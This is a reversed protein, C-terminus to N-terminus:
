LNEQQDGYLKEIDIEGSQPDFRQISGIIMLESRSSNAKLWRNLNGLEPIVAPTRSKEIKPSGTTGVRIERRFFSLISSREGLLRQTDVGEEIPGGKAPLPRTMEPRRAFLNPLRNPCFCIGQLTYRQELALGKKPSDILM